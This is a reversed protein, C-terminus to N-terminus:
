AVHWGNTAGPYWPGKTGWGVGHKATGICSAVTGVASGFSCDMPSNKQASSAFNVPNACIM